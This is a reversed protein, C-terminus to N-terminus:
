PGVTLLGWFPLATVGPAGLGGGMGCPSCGSREGGAGGRGTGMLLLHTHKVCVTHQQFLHPVKKLLFSFFSVLPSYSTQPAAM